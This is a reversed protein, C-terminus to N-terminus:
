LHRLEPVPDSGTKLATELVGCLVLVDRLLAFEVLCRDSSLDESWGTCIHHQKASCADEKDADNRWDEVSM